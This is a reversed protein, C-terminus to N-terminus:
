IPMPTVVYQSIQPRPGECTAPATPKAEPIPWTTASRWESGAPADIVYYRIPPERDIGNDINKLWRDFWRHREVALNFGQDEGHFWPGVILKQPVKLNRYWLFADRPFADFWGALGYVPVASKNIQDLYTAPGREAHIDKGSVPDVSNRYPVGSWMTLVNRNVSHGAIASDRQALGM